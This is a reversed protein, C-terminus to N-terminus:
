DRGTPPDFTVTMRLTYPVPKGDLMAPTFRVSELARVAAAQFQPHDNLTVTRQTGAKDQLIMASRIGGPRDIATVSGVNGQSDILVDVLASGSVADPRMEEPYNAAIVERLAAKDVVDPLRDVGSLQRVQDPTMRHESVVRRDSVILNSGPDSDSCGCLLALPLLLSRFCSASLRM